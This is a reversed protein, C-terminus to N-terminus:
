IKALRRNLYVGVQNKIREILNRRGINGKESVKRYCDRCIVLLNSMRSAAFSRECELCRYCRIVKRAPVIRDSVISQIADLQETYDSVSFARIEGGTFNTKSGFNCAEAKRNSKM